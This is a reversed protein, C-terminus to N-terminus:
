VAEGHGSGGFPRDHSHLVRNVFSAVCQLVSYGAAVCQLVSYRAAVCQLVSSSTVAAHSVISSHHPVSCCAAVRQLVSCFLTVRQLVSYCVLSKNHRYSVRRKLSAVSQLVSCCSAVCQLM